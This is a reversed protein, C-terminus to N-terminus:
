GRALKRRLAAGALLLGGLLMSGVTAPEPVVTVVFDGSYTSIQSGGGLISAQIQAPTLGAIQTTFAGLWNSTSSSADRAVGFASLSVSTGTATSQLVFPSNPFVACAPANPNLTTSCTTNSPGPGISTLDFHLDPASSFTMFNVVPFVDTAANLDKITGTAAAGLTGSTFSLNTTQGTVICGTGGGVPQTWDISTATVVVGGGSCNTVNLGGIVAGSAHPAMAFLGIGVAVSYATGLIKNRM